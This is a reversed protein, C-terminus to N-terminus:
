CKCELQVIANGKMLLVMSYARASLPRRSKGKPATTLIYQGNHSINSHYVSANGGGLHQENTTIAHTHYTELRTSSRPRSLFLRTKPSSPTTRTDVTSSASPFDFRFTDQRSHTEERARISLRTRTREPQRASSPRQTEREGIEVITFHKRPRLLGYNRDESAELEGVM